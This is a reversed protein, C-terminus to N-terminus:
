EHAVGGSEAAPLPNRGNIPLTYGRAIKDAYYERLQPYAALDVAVSKAGTVRVGSTRLAAVKTPSDSLLVISEVGLDVLVAAAQEYRRQDSPYGLRQYADTQSISEETALRAARMLAMHGNGRGDQDMWVIVGCGHERIMVQTMMLQERCDCEISNFVHASICDSHVRVPVDRKSEVAGHVLAICEKLGDHYLIETWEGFATRLPRRALCVIM